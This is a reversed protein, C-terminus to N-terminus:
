PREEPVAVTEAARASRVWAVRARRSPLLSPEGLAEYLAQSTEFHSALGSKELLSIPGEPYGLGLQVTLDLDDARALQEDLAQLASNFYPRVLRDVIRGPWDSCVATQLGASEFVERAADLADTETGPQRVIEVLQSAQRNGLRFRSFGVINSGEEGRSEGTWVGLCETGLEVLVARKDAIDLSTLALGADVGALIIVDAAEANVFESFPLADPEFSRSSGYFQVCVSTM